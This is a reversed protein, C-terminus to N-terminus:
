CCHPIEEGDADVIRREGLPGDLKVAGSHPGEGGTGGLVRPRGFVDCGTNRKGDRHPGTLV